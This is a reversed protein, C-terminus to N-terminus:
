ARSAAAYRRASEVAATWSKILKRREAEDLNPDARRDLRWESSLDELSDYV